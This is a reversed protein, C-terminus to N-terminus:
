GLLAFSSHIVHSRPHKHAQSHVARQYWGVRAPMRNNLCVPVCRTVPPCNTAACRARTRRGCGHTSVNRTTCTAAASLRLLGSFHRTARSQVIGATAAIASPPGHPHHHPLTHTLADAKMIFSSFTGACPMRVGKSALPLADLCIACESQGDNRLSRVLSFPWIFVAVCM